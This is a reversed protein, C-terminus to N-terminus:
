LNRTAWRSVRFRYRTEQEHDTEKAYPVEPHRAKESRCPCSAGPTKWPRIAPRHMTTTKQWTWAVRTDPLRESQWVHGSLPDVRFLPYMYAYLYKWKTRNACTTLQVCGAHKSLSSTKKKQKKKLLLNQTSQRCELAWKVHLECFFNTGTSYGTYDRYISIDVSEIHWTFKYTRTDGAHM